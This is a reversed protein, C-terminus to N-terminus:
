QDSSDDQKTKVTLKGLKDKIVPTFKDGFVYIMTGYFVNQLSDPPNTAHFWYGFMMTFFEFTLMYRGISAPSDARIFAAVTHDFIFKLGQILMNM